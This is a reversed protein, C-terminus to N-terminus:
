LPRGYASGSWSASVGNGPQYLHSRRWCGAGYRNWPLLETEEPDNGTRKQFRHKRCWQRIFTGKPVREGYVWGYLCPVIGRLAYRHIDYTIGSRPIYRRQNKKR